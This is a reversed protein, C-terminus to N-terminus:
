NLIRKQLEETFARYYNMALAKEGNHILHISKQVLEVFLFDLIEQKNEQQEIHKVISPATRYYEQILKENKLEGLIYEDRFARLTQLEPCDDALGKGVVCCTTLYCSAGEYERTKRLTLYNKTNASSRTPMLWFTTGKRQAYTSRLWKMISSEKLYHTHYASPTIKSYYARNEDDRSHNNEFRGEKFYEYEFSKQNQSIDFHFYGKNSHEIRTFNLDTSIRTLVNAQAGELTTVKNKDDVWISITHLQGQSDPERYYGQQLDTFLNKVLEVEIYWSIKESNDSRTLRQRPSQFVEFTTDRLFSTKAKGFVPANVFTAGVMGLATKKLFDDRKM